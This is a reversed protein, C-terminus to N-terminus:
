IRRLPTVMQQTHPSYKSIFLVRKLDSGICIVIEKEFVQIAEKFYNFNFDIELTQGNLEFETTLSEMKAIEDVSSKATIKDNEVMLTFRYNKDDSNFFIKNILEDIVKKDITITTIFDNPILHDYDKYMVEALKSIIITDRTVFALETDSAYLDIKKNGDDILMKKINRGKIVKEFEVKQEIKATHKALRFSDSAFFKLFGNKAHLLVSSLRVNAENVNNSIAFIVNNIAEKFDSYNMTVKDGNLSFIPTPYEQNKLLSLDYTTHSSSLTIVNNRMLVTIEGSVKSVSKKFFDFYILAEGTEFIELDNSVPITTKISFDGDSGILEIEKEYVNILVGRLQMMVNNPDIAKGVINLHKELLNKKIKFNM